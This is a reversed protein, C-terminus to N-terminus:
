RPPTLALRLDLLADAARPTGILLAGSSAAALEHVIQEARHRQEGEGVAALVAERADLAERRPVADRHGARALVEDILAVASSPGLDAVTVGVASM